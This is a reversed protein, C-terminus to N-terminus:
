AEILVTCNPHLMWTRKGFDGSLKNSQTNVDYGNIYNVREWEKHSQVYYWMKCNKPTIDSEYIQRLTKVTGIIEQNTMDDGQTNSNKVM